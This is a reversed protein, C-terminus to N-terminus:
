GVFDMLDLKILEWHKGRLCEPQTQPNAKAFDLMQTKWERQSYSTHYRKEHFKIMQKFTFHDALEHLDWFDKIRGGGLVVELKMAAIEELSAMRITDILVTPFIFKDTYNVDVKITKAKDDGVKYAIGNGVVMLNYFETVSFEDQMVKTISKFDLKGYDIDSFLDIDESMRHGLQLSLSTGGVLRFHNFEKMRMCRM